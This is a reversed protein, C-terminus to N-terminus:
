VNLIDAYILFAVKDSKQYQTFDLIKTYESPMIVNIIKIYIINEFYKNECVKKHSELKSKTRFSHLCNFCYFDDISKSSIRKIISVIKKRFSLAM